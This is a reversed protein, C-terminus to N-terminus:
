KVNKDIMGSNEVVHFFTDIKLKFSDSLRNEKEKDTLWTETSDIVRIRNDQFITVLEYTESEVDSGSANEFLNLSDIKNGLKDYTVLIPTQVDGNVIYVIGVTEDGEFLVGYLDSANSCKYKEFLERNYDQQHHNLTLEITRFSIPKKIRDLNNIYSEFTDNKYSSCSVLLSFVFISRRLM